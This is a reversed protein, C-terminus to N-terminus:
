EVVIQKKLVSGDEFEIHVTYIGTSLKSVDIKNQNSELMKKADSSYVRVTIPLNTEIILIDQVPNPFVAINHHQSTGIGDVGIVLSLTMTDSKCNNTNQALAYVSGNGPAGWTVEVTHNNPQNTITGGSVWWSYTLNANTPAYYFESQQEIVTNSGTISFAAPIPEITLNLTYTSDCQASPYSVSYQGAQTYSNGHFEITDGACISTNLTDHFAPDVQLSLVVISDCSGVVPITDYYSGAVSVYNGGFLMSDGQCVTGSIYNYNGIAQGLVWNSTNGSLSFNMLTANLTGASNTATTLGSNNGGAVGQDFKYHLKLNSAALQTGCTYLASIEATTLAKDWLCVEDVTGLFQFNSSQFPLKGIYLTEGSSLISGSASTTSVQVNDKYLTLSSGDYTLVFHQWTNLQLGSYSITYNTGSSNRFRAELTTSNLQLMYFDLTSENRFGCFGDFNPWGSSANTPYVWCSMSIGTGGVITSSAGSVMAYDDVGDFNLGNQANVSIMSGSFFIFATSLIVLQLKQIHKKM